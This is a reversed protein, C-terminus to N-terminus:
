KFVTDSDVEVYRQIIHHHIFKFPYPRFHGHMPSYTSDVQV